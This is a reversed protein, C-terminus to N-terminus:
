GEKRLKNTVVAIDHADAAGSLCLIIMKDKGLEPARKMVEAIAPASELACMIGETQALFKFAKKTEDITATACNIRKIDKFYSLEPGTAPLNVGSILLHPETPRGDEDDRLYTYCGNWIGPKGGSLAANPAHEVVTFNMNPFKLFPYFFGLATAGGKAAAILLDPQKGEKEYIQRYTEAGIITQLDRTIEPLPAPGCVSVPVFYVEEYKKTWNNMASNLASALGGPVSVIEAGLYKMMSIKGAHWVIDKEGLYIQCDLGLRAAMVATAVGNNGNGSATIVKKKGLYKALLVHGAASNFCSSGTHNKDERKLYIKAGKLEESLKKAFFLSTPRGSLERLTDNYDTVFKEDNKFREYGAAIDALPAMMYEPVFSGGYKGFHGNRQNVAM